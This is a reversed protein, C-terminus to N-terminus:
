VYVAPHTKLHASVPMSIWVGSLGDLLENM